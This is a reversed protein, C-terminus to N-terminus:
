MLKTNFSFPEMCLVWTNISTNLRFSTTNNQYKSAHVEKIECDKKFQAITCTVFFQISLLYCCYFIIRDYSCHWSLREFQVIRDKGTGWLPIHASLYRLCGCKINTIKISKLVGYRRIMILFTNEGFILPNRTEFATANIMTPIVLYM